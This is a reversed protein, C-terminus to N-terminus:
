IVEQMLIRVYYLEKVGEYLMGIANYDIKTLTSFFM